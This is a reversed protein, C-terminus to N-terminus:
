IVLFWNEGRGLAFLMACRICCDDGKLYVGPIDNAEGRADRQYGIAILARWRAVTSQATLCIVRRPLPHRFDVDGLISAALCGDALPIQPNSPRHECPDIHEVTWLAGFLERYGTRRFLQLGDQTIVMRLSVIFSDGNVGVLPRDYFVPSGNEISVEEPLDNIYFSSDTYSKPGDVIYHKRVGNRCPVGKKVILSGPEIFSPDADGFTSLFLSWGHDSILCVSSLDFEKKPGIMLVAIAHLWTDETVLINQKGNWNLLEQVLGNDHLLEISSCLMLNSAETMDQINTFALILAILYRIKQLLKRWLLDQENVQPNSATEQLTSIMELITQPPGRTLILGMKYWKNKYFDVHSKGLVQGFLSNSAKLIRREDIKIIESEYESESDSAPSVYEEQESLYLNARTQMHLRKSVLVASAASFCMVQDLLAKSGEETGITKRLVDKGYGHFPHRAVGELASEDPEPTLTFLAERTVAELLTVSVAKMQGRAMSSDKIIVQDNGHGFRIEKCCPECTKVLVTLGMLRHAWVVIASIGSGSEIVIIRDEPLSQVIPFMSIVARVIVSPIPEYARQDPMELTHAVSMMLIRWDFDSTQDQCARLVGFIRGEEPTAKMRGDPAAAQIAGLANQEFILSITAALSNSQHISTLFSCQIVMSFYLSRQPVKKLARLVTPGPGSQLIIAECLKSSSPDAAVIARFSSEMEPAIRCKGLIEVLDEEVVIDSGSNQLDRALAMTKSAIAGLPVLRSLELSLAFQTAFSM